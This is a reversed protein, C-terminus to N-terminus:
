LGGHAHGHDQEGLGQERARHETLPRQQDPGGGLPARQGPRDQGRAAPGAAHDRVAGGSNLIKIREKENLPINM